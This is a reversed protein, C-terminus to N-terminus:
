LVCMTECHGILLINYYEIWQYLNNVLSDHCKYKPQINIPTLVSSSDDQSSAKISSNYTLIM